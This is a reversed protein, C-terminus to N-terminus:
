GASGDVPAADGDSAEAAPTAPAAPADPAAALSAQLSDREKEMKLMKEQLGRLHTEAHRLQFYLDGVDRCLAAYASHIQDKTM